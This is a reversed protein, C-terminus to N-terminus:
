GFRGHEFGAQGNSMARRKLRIGELVTGTGSSFEKGNRMRKGLYAASSWPLGEVEM